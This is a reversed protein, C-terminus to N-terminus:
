GITIYGKGSEPGDAASVLQAIEDRTRHPGGEASGFVFERLRPLEREGQAHGMNYAALLKDQNVTSNKVPM